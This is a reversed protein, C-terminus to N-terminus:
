DFYIRMNEEYEQKNAANFSINMLSLNKVQGIREFFTKPLKNFNTYFGITAHPIADNILAVRDFIKKGLFAENVM